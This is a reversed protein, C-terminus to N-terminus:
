AAGVICCGSSMSGSVSSASRAPMSAANRPLELMIRSPSVGSMSAARYPRAASTAVRLTLLATLLADSPHALAPQSLEDVNSLRADALGDLEGCRLADGAFACDHLATSACPDPM